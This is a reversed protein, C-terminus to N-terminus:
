DDCHTPADLHTRDSTKEAQDNEHNCLCNRSFMRYAPMFSPEPLRKIGIQRSNCRKFWMIVMDDGIINVKVGVAEVAEDFYCVGGGCVISREVNLQAFVKGM